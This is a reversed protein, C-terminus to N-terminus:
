RDEGAKRGLAGRVARVARAAGGAAEGVGGHRAGTVAESLGTVADGVGTVGSVAGSVGGRVAGTVAGAVTGTVSAIPSPLHRAFDELATRTTYAPRLGLVTRMRTTDLVRGWLLFDFQEGSVEAWRARQAARGVLRGWHSLVPLPVRRIMATAQTLTLIGDGAINFAGEQPSRAGLLLAAIADDEHLLQLRADYGFPIPIFPRQLYETLASDLHPGVIHAMRLVCVELEPRRRKVGRVYGEVELLDKVFGPDPVSRLNMEETFLAPDRPSSGYVAGTSKVVIRRLSPTAQCAALLQMTGLVNSEMQANRGRAGPQASPAVSTHVVTDVAAQSMVRAVVPNRIDARVFEADGLDMPPAAVDIGIVRDVDPAAALERAFRGGLYRSVGTVLVTTGM